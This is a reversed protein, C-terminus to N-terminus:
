AGKAAAPGPDSTSTRARAAVFDALDRESYRVARGIKFFRPGAGTQRWNQMTRVSVGLLTAAEKETLRPFSVVNTM